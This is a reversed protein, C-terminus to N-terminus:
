RPPITLSQGVKLDEARRLGNAELIPRWAQASGYYRKAIAGLTEGKQVVHKRSTAAVADQPPVPQTATAAAAAPLPPLQLTQGIKLQAPNKIGNADALFRWHNESGYQARAIKQLNDNERVRYTRVGPAAANAPTAAPPAGARTTAPASAASAPPIVPEGRRPDGAPPRTFDAESIWTRRQEPPLLHVARFGSVDLLPTGPQADDPDARRSGSMLGIIAAVVLLGLAAFALRLRPTM